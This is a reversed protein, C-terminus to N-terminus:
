KRFVPLLSFYKQEAAARARITFLMAPLQAHMLASVRPQGKVFRERILRLFLQM